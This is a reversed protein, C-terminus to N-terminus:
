FAKKPGTSPTTTPTAGAVPQSGLMAANVLGQYFQLSRPDSIGFGALTSLIEKGGAQIEQSLAQEQARQSAIYPSEVQAQGFAANPQGMAQRRLVTQNEAIERRIQDRHALNAAARKSFQEIATMAMGHTARDVGPPINALAEDRSFQQANQQLGATHQQQDNMKAMDWENLTAAAPRGAGEVGAIAAKTLATQDNVFDFKEPATAIENFAGLSTTSRQAQNGQLTAQAQATQDSTVNRAVQRALGKQFDGTDANEGFIGKLAVGEPGFVEKQQGALTMQLGPELYKNRVETGTNQLDLGTNTLGGRTLELERSKELFERNETDQQLGRRLKLFQELGGFMAGLARAAM